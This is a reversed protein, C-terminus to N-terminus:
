SDAAANAAARRLQAHGTPDEIQGKNGVSGRGHILREAMVSDMAEGTYEFTANPRTGQATRGGKANMLTSSKGSPRFSAPRQLMKWVAAKMNARILSPHAPYTHLRYGLAKYAAALTDKLVFSLGLGQWDPLTVHRSIGRINRAGVSPHPRHLVGSFTALTGNCWLGYCQATRNLAATLYHFPAFQDWVAYPVKAVSIELKPRPQVARWAFEMAPLQLVWDPQLWDMVDYHCTVAVFQKDTKRIYKQVAHSGIQAVQRDVVSTFEDVVIPANGGALLRRALDARFREGTSLVSYPRMWAPITNFGVARCIDAIEAMSHAKPFDDVVAGAGWELPEFDGWLKRMVSSKGGGSPGVVLGVNWERAEIPVEGKWSLRSAEAPPVDFMAELQRVRGTRSLRSEVVLDVSPM